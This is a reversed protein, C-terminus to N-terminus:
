LKALTILNKTKAICDADLYSSMLLKNNFKLATTMINKQKQIKKM